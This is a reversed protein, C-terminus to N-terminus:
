YAANGADEAKELRIAQIGDGIIRYTWFDDEMGFYIGFPTLEGSSLMLIHPDTGPEENNWQKGSSTEAGAAEGLSFLQDEMELVLDVSAPLRHLQFMPADSQRWQEREVDFKLIQYEQDGLRLGYEAGELLAAEAAAALILQLRQAEPGLTRRPSNIDFNLLALGALLSVIM